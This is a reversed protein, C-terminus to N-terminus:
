LLLHVIMARGDMPVNVLARIAHGMVEVTIRALLRWLVIMLNGDMTANAFVM